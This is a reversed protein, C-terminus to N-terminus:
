VFEGWTMGMDKVKAEVIWRWTMKSRTTGREKSM